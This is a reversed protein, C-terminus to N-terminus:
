TLKSKRKLRRCYLIVFITLFIVVFLFIGLAAMPHLLIWWGYVNLIYDKLPELKPDGYIAGSYADWIKQEYFEDWLNCRSWDEASDLANRIESKVLQFRISLAQGKTPEIRPWKTDTYKSSLSTLSGNRLLDVNHAFTTWYYMMQNSLQIDDEDWTDGNVTTQRFIYWIDTAHAVGMPSSRASKMSADHKYLFVSSEFQALDLAARRNEV